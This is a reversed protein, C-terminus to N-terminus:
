CRRTSNTKSSSQEHLAISVPRRKTRAATASKRGLPAPCGGERDVGIVAYEGCLQLGSVIEIEEENVKTGGNVKAPRAEPSLNALFM